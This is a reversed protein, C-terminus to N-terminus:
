FYYQVKIMLRQNFLLVTEPSEESFFYSFGPKLHLAIGFQGFDIGPGVTIGFEVGNLNADWDKSSASGVNVYSGLDLHIFYRPVQGIWHLGFVFRKASLEKDSPYSIESKINEYEIHYGIKFYPSLKYEYFINYIVSLKTDPWVNYQDFDIYMGDERPLCVGTSFGVSHVNGKEQSFLCISALLLIILSLQKKM